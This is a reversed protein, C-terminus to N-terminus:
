ARKNKSRLKKKEHAVAAATHKRAVANMGKLPSDITHSYVSAYMLQTMTRALLDKERESVRESM